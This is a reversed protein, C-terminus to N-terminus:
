GNIVNKGVTGQVRDQRDKLQNFGMAMHALITHKMSTWQCQGSWIVVFNCKPLYQLSDVYTFTKCTM